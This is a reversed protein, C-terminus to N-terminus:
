IHKWLADFRGTAASREIREGKGEEVIQQIETFRFQIFSSTSEIVQDLVVKREDGGQMLVIGPTSLSYFPPMIVTMEGSGTTQLFARYSVLNEDDPLQLRVVVPEIQGVIIEVGFDLVGPKTARMWRVICLQLQDPLESMTSGVGILEGVRIGSDGTGIWGFHYGHESQDFMMSNRIFGNNEVAIQDSPPVKVSAESESASSRVRSLDPGGDVLFEDAALYRTGESVELTDVSIGQDLLEPLEEGGFLAYLANLGFTLVADEQSELRGKARNGGGDWALILRTLLDPGVTEPADHPRISSVQTDAASLDDMLRRVVDDVVVILGKETPWSQGATMRLPPTDQSPDLVFASNPENGKELRQLHCEKAWQKLAVYVHSVEGQKMKYPDSLALLLAQHYLEAVTMNDVLLRDENELEMRDFHHHVAYHYFGHLELWFSGPAPQYYQYAHLLIRGFFYVVRHIAVGRKHGHLLHGVITEHHYQDLVLKYAQIILVYLSMNIKYILRGRRDEPFPKPVPHGSLDGLVLLLQPLLLELDAMRDAVPLEYHNMLQLQQHIDQAAQTLDGTPLQEVWLRFEGPLFVESGVDARKRKPLHFPNNSETM